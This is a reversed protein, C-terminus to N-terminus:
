GITSPLSAAAAFEGHKAGAEDAANRLYERRGASFKEAFTEASRSSEQLMADRDGSREIV